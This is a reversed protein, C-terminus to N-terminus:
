VGETKQALVVLQETTLEMITKLTAIVQRKGDNVLAMEPANPDYISQYWCCTAELFKMVEQGHPSEFTAHVNSKLKRVYDKDTLNM